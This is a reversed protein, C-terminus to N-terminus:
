SALTKCQRRNRVMGWLMLAIAIGFLAIAIGYFFGVIGDALSEPLRASHHLLFRTTNAVIVFVLGTRFLLNFQSRHRFKM